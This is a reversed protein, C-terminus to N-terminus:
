RRTCASRCSRPRPVRRLSTLLGSREAGRGEAGVRLDATVDRRHGVPRAAHADDPPRLRGERHLCSCYRRSGHAPAGARQRAAASPGRRPHDGADAVVQQQKATLPGLAQDLWPFLTTQISLWYPAFVDRLRSM